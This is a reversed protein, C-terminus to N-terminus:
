GNSSIEKLNIDYLKRSKLLGEKNYGFQIAAFNSNPATTIKGHKDYFKIWEVRRGDQSFERKAHQILNGNLDFSKVDVQNNFNDYENIVRAVGSPMAKKRGIVDFGRLEVKNGRCDYLHEGIAFEPANGESPLLNEDYVMWRSFNEDQDYVIRDMGARMSNNITNGNEDIHYIFDLLDDDGFELNVKYFTFDPRITVPEGKINFREEQVSNNNLHTWSYRHIGWANEAPNNKSDYIKLSIRKGEDNLQIVSKFMSGHAEIRQDIHNYYYRVEQNSEYSITMKPSFWIFTDWNGNDAVIHDALRRSVEILRDNEDYVFRYHVENQAENYDIPHNGRIDSLPTERFILHRYYEIKQSYLCTSTAAIIYISLITIRIMRYSAKKM